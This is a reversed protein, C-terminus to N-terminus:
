LFIVTISMSDDPKPKTAYYWKRFITAPNLKRGNKVGFGAAILIDRRSKGLYRGIEDAHEVVLARFEDILEMSEDPILGPKLPWGKLDDMINDDDVNVNAWVSSKVGMTPASESSRGSYAKKGKKM